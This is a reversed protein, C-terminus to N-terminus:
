RECQDSIVTGQHAEKFAALAKPYTAIAETKNGDSAASWMRNLLREGQAAAVVVEVGQYQGLLCIVEQQAAAFPLVYTDLMANVRKAIGVGDLDNIEQGLTQMEALLEELLAMVNLCVQNSFTSNRQQIQPWRLLLLGVVALVVAGVYFPLMDSWRTGSAPLKTASILAVIIGVIFLLSGTVRM